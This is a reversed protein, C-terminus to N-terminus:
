ESKILKLNFPVPIIKNIYKKLFVRNSHMSFSEGDFYDSIYLYLVFSESFTFSSKIIDFMIEKNKEDDTNEIFNILNEIGYFFPYLNATFNNVIKKYETEGVKRSYDAYKLNTIKGGRLVVFIIQQLFDGYDNINYKILDHASNIHTQQGTKYLVSISECVELKTKKMLNNHLILFTELNSKKKALKKEEEMIQRQQDLAVASKKMEERTLKLEEKQLNYSELLLLFAALTLIPTVAGSFFDSAAGADQVRLWYNFFDTYPWRFLVAIVIPMCFAGLILIKAWKVLDINKM